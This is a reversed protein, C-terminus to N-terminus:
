GLIFRSQCMLNGKFGYTSRLTSEEYKVNQLNPFFTYCCKDIMIDQLINENGDSDGTNPRNIEGGVLLWQDKKNDRYNQRKWFTKYNSDYLQLRKLHDGKM